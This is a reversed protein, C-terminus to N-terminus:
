LAYRARAKEHQNNNTCYENYILKFLFLHFVLVLFAISVWFLAPLGGLHHGHRHLAIIHHEHAPAEGVEQVHITHKLEEMHKKDSTIYLIATPPDTLKVPFQKKESGLQIPADLCGGDCAYYNKGSGQLSVYMVAKNDTGLIVSINLQTGNQYNIQRFYYDRHLDKPHTCFELHHNSFKFAGFSLVVAQLVGEAGAKLMTSCGQKELTLKWLSVVNIIDEISSLHSWLTSAQLTHHGDYCRDPSDLAQFLEQRRNIQIDIEHLPARTNSLIYYLTANIKDGNLANSAKSYSIEFGSKWIQKWAEIHDAKLKTASLKVARSFNSKTQKVAEELADNFDDLTLPGVYHISALIQLTQASQKKVKVRQPIASHIMSYAFMMGSHEDLPVKGTVLPYKENSNGGDISTVSGSNLFEWNTVGPMEVEFYVDEETPNTLKIEQIFLSPITRHAYYSYHVDVTKEGLLYCHFRHIWGNTYHLATAHSNTGDMSLSVIPQFPVPLSLARGSKIYIMGNPTVVVGIQGNGVFPLFNSESFLLPSHQITADFQEASRVLNVDLNSSKSTLARFLYPGAYVLFALVFFAVILLKRYSFHVDGLRRLWRFRESLDM